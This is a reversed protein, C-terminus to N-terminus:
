APTQFSSMVLVASAAAPAQIPIPLKMMNLITLKLIQAIASRSMSTNPSLEVTMTASITNRAVATGVKLECGPATQQPVERRRGSGLRDLPQREVAAVPQFGIDRDVPVPDVGADRKCRQYRLRRVAEDDGRRGQGVTRGIGRQRPMAGFGSGAQPM